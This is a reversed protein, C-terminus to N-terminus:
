GKEHLKQLKIILNYLLEIDKVPFSTQGILTLILKIEDKSLKEQNITNIAM